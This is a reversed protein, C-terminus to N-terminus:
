KLQIRVLCNTIEDCYWSKKYPQMRLSSGAPITSVDSHYTWEPNLSHTSLRFEHIEVNINKLEEGDNIIAYQFAEYKKDFYASVILPNYSQKIMNLSMKWNGSYDLM